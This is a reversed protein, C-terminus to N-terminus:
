GGKERKDGVLRLLRKYVAKRTRNHVGQMHRDYDLIRKTEYRM